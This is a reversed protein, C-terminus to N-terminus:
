AAPVHRAATLYGALQGAAVQPSGGGNNGIGPATSV